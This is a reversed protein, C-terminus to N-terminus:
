ICVLQQVPPNPARAPWKSLFVFPRQLFLVSLSPKLPFNALHKPIFRSYWLTYTSLDPGYTMALLYGQGPSLSIM